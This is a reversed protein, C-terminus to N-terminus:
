LSIVFLLNWIDDLLSDAVSGRCHWLRKDVSGTVSDCFEIFAVGVTSRLATGKWGMYSM